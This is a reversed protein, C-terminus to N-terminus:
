RGLNKNIRYIFLIPNSNENLNQYLLDLESKYESNNKYLMDKLSLVSFSPAQVVISNDEFRAVPVQNNLFNFFPHLGFGSQLFTKKAQHAYVVGPYGFQTMINLYTYEELEVFDGNFFIHTNLLKSFEKDTIKEIESIGSKGLNVHYKAQISEDLVEYITDSINPSFFTKEGYNRLIRNKSYTFDSDYISEWFGYVLQNNQNTVILSKNKDKGLKADFMGDVNYAKFGTKIYVFYDLMFPQKEEKVFEGKMNYYLIRHQSNDYIVLQKNDPTLCVNWISSYEGPGSGLNFIKYKYQGDLDYFFVSKTSQNDVVIMLSDVFFLQSVNGVICEDSTELKIFDIKDFLSDSALMSSSDSPDINIDQLMSSDVGILQGTKSCSCFLVLFSLIATRMFLNNM